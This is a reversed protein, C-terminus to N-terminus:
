ERCFTLGSRRSHLRARPLIRVVKAAFAAAGSNLPTPRAVSSAGMGAFDFAARAAGFIKNGRGVGAETLPLIGREMVEILREALAADREAEGAM